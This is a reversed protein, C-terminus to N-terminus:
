DMDQVVETVEPCADKLYREVGMKLTMMAMPCSGCAGVLKLHVRNQEDLSIYEMDGGDAQLQPRFMDLAEKISAELRENAM